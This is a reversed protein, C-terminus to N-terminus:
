DELRWLLGYARENNKIAKGINSKASQLSKASKFTMCFIAAETIDSFVIDHEDGPINLIIQKGLLTQKKITIQKRDIIPGGAYKHSKGTLISIISDTTRNLIRSIEPVTLEGESYKERVYKISSFSLDKFKGKRM